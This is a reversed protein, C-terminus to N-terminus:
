DRDGQIPSVRVKARIEHAKDVFTLVSDGNRIEPMVVTGAFLTEEKEQPRTGSTIVLSLVPKVHDEDPDRLDALKRLDCRLASFPIFMTTDTLKETIALTGELTRGLRDNDLEGELYLRIKSTRGNVLRSNILAVMDEQLIITDVAILTDYRSPRSRLTNLLVATLAVLVAAASVFRLVFSPRSHLRRRAEPRTGQTSVPETSSAAEHLATSHETRLLSSHPQEVGRELEGRSRSLVKAWEEHDHSLEESDPLVATTGDDDQQRAFALLDPDIDDWRM